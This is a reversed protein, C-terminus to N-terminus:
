QTLIFILILKVTPKTASDTLMFNNIDSPKRM